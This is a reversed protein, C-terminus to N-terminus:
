NGTYKNTHSKMRQSMQGFEARINESYLSFLTDLIIEFIFQGAVMNYLPKGDACIKAVKSDFIYDMVSIMEDNIANLSDMFEGLKINDDDGIDDAEFGKISLEQLRPYSERLRNLIGFDSVDLEIIRNNDGNIRFQERKDINLQIDTVGNLKKKTGM